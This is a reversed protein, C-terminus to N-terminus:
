TLVGNLACSLRLYQESLALSFLRQPLCNIDDDSISYDSPKGRTLSRMSVLIRMWCVGATELPLVCPGNILRVFHGARERAWKMGPIPSAVGPNLCHTNGQWTAQPVQRLSQQGM